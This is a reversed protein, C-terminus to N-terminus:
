ISTAPYASRYDDLLEAAKNLVEVGAETEPYRYYIESAGARLYQETIMRFSDIDEFPDRDLVSRFAFASWRISKPDRGIEQCMSNLTAGFTEMAAPGHNLNWIDAYEAVLRLMRPKQAGIMIPLGDPQLPKPEFPANELTYFNGTFTTRNNSQLQKIMQLAERLMDVRQGPQYLEWGYADHERAYWGAGLGLDVRGGTIHDLTVAQKALLVPNRYTNGSVLIAVRLRPVLSALATLLTWGEFFDGDESGATPMFHDVVGACDFGLQEIRQWEALTEEWPKSQSTWIGFRLDFM